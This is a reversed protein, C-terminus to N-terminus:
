RHLTGQIAGAPYNGNHVNFYYRRPHELIRRIVPRPVSTACNAGDIVSGTLDVVVGGDSKRHIHAAEPDGIYRYTVNACVRAKMRNLRFDAHGRGNPDGVDTGRLTAELYRVAASQQQAEATSSAGVAATPAVFAVAVLSASALLTVAVPYRRAARSEHAAGPVSNWEGSM